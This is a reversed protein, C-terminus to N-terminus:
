NYENLNLHKDMVKLKIFFRIFHSFGNVQNEQQEINKKLYLGLFRLM